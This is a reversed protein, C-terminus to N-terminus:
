SWTINSGSITSTKNWIDSIRDTNPELAEYNFILKYDFDLYDQYDSSSQILSNNLSISNLVQITENPSLLKKYYYWGDSGDVFDNTFTSTWEKNVVNTGNITNSLNVITGDIVKSWSENFNIRLVVPTNSTENNTIYVKKTGWDDNYDEDISVNYIMTKFENPLTVNQYYYAFTGGISVVVLFGLLFLLPKSKINRFKNM